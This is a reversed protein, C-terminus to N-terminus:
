ITKKFFTKKEVDPRVSKLM